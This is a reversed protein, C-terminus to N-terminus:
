AEAGEGALPIFCCIPGDWVFRVAGGTDPSKKNPSNATVRSSLPALVLCFISMGSDVREHPHRHALDRRNFITPRAKNVKAPRANGSNGGFSFTYGDCSISLLPVVLRYWFTHISGLVVNQPFSRVRAHLKLSSQFTGKTTPLFPHMGFYHYMAAGKVPQHLPRNQYKNSAIM